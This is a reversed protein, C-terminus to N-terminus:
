HLKLLFCFKAETQLVDWFRLEILWTVAYPGDGCEAHAILDIEGKAISYYGEVEKDDKFDVTILVGISLM